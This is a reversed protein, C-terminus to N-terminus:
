NTLNWPDNSHDTNFLEDKFNQYELLISDSFLTNSNGANYVAHKASWHTQSNIHPKYDTGYAIIEDSTYHLEDTYLSLGFTFSKKRCLIVYSIKM